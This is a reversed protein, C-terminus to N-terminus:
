FKDSEYTSLFYFKESVMGGQGNRSFRAKLCVVSFELGGLPVLFGSSRDMEKRPAVIPRSTRPPCPQTLM